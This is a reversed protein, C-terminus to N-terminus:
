TAQRHPRAAIVEVEVLFEPKTFGSVIMLTSAPPRSKFMSDRVRMYGHVHERETVYANVRVVNALNMERERLLLEINLFCLKTQEEVSEPVLGQPNLGLQGSSFLLDAGSRVFVGHSYAAFPAPMTEPVLYEVLLRDDM